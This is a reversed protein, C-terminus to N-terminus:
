EEEEGEREATPDVTVVQNDGFMAKAEEVPDIHTHMDAAMEYVPLMEPLGLAFRLDDLWQEIRGWRQERTDGEVILADLKGLAAAVLPEEPFLRPFQSRLWPHCEECARPLQHTWLKNGTLFDLIEHVGDMAQPSVLRGTTLSLVDGIHFLKM